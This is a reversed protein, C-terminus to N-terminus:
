SRRAEGESALEYATRTEVAVPAPGHADVPVRGTANAWAHEVYAWAFGLGATLFYLFHLPVGTVAAAAGHRRALFAYFDRNLWAIAAFAVAAVALWSVHWAALGSGALVLGALAVSARQAARVNLADPMSGRVLILRSWPLARGILDTRLMSPLTWRKTHTVQMAHDLLVRGGRARLRVGLEIDEISEWARDFGGLEEFVQKRIAGCGAWFTVAEADGIQHTYHHLLNRFRSVTGNASPADDYSGFVADYERRTSLAAHARAATDPSVIVDSDVFLLIEGRASRAGHNRAVAAGYRRALRLVNAKFSSAVAATDDTSGDDVVIIEFPVNRQEVLAALCRRLDDPRNHVPVILSVV